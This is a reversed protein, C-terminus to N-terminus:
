SQKNRGQTDGDGSCSVIVSEEPACFVDDGEEFPCSLIDAEQGSCALESIRPPTTGCGGSSSCRPRTAFPKAGAFGMAKCAVAEAGATFGSGCVPSWSGARFIELRGQGDISPSGDSALLRLLGDQLTDAGGATGCFVVADSSHSLCADDPPAWNCEQIDLEGGKCQLDKAAVPTGTAGCLNSGGYNGCASGVSGHDYGLMRCVVDAAGLDMGCVTGFGDGAPIQLLGVNGM